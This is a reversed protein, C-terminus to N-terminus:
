QLIEEIKKELAENTLLGPKKDKVAKRRRAAAARASQRQSEAASQEVTLATVLSRLLKSELKLAAQLEQMHEPEMAFVLTGLFGYSQKAIPYAMRIKEVQRDDTCDAGCKELITKIPARTEDTVIFTIEYKKNKENEM